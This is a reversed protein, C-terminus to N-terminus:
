MARYLQYVGEEESEIRLNLAEIIGKLDTLFESKDNNINELAGYKNLFAVVTEKIGNMEAIFAETNTTNDGKDKLM